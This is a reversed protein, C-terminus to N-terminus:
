ILDNYVMDGTIQLLSSVLTFNWTWVLFYSNSNYVAIWRNSM